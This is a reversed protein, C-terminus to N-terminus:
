ENILKNIEEQVQAYQKMLGKNYFDCKLNHLHRLYDYDVNNTSKSTAM